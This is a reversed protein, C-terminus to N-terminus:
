NTCEPLDQLAAAIEAKVQPVRETLYSKNLPALAQMNCINIMARVVTARMDRSPNGLLPVLLDVDSALGTRTQGLAEVAARLRLLDQPTHQAVQEAMIMAVLSDHVTTGAGCAQLGQPCYSPMARIARIEIGLDITRDLALERLRDLASQPTFAANLAAKSPLAEIPTLANVVGPPLMTPDGYAPLACLVVACSVLGLRM